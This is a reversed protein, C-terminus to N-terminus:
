ALLYKTFLEYKKAVLAKQTLWLKTAKLELVRTVNKKLTDCTNYVALQLGCAQHSM